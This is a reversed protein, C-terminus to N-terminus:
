QDVVDHGRGSLFRYGLLRDKPLLPHSSLKPSPYEKDHGDDEARDDRVQVRRHPKRGATYALVWSVDSTFRM